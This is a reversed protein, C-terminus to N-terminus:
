HHVTLSSESIQSDQLKEQWTTTLLGEVRLFTFIPTLRTAQGHKKTESALM